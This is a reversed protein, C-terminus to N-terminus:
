LLIYISSNLDTIFRNLPNSITLQLIFERTAGLVGAGSVGSVNWVSSEISRQSYICMATLNSDSKTTDVKISNIFGHECDINNMSNSAKTESPDPPFQHHNSTTIYKLFSRGHESKLYLKKYFYLHVNFAHMATRISQYQTREFTNKRLIYVICCQACIALPMNKGGISCCSFPSAVLGDPTFSISKLAYGVDCAASDSTVFSQQLYCKSSPSPGCVGEPIRGM